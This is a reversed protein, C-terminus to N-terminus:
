SAPEALLDIISKQEVLLVDLPTDPNTLWRYFDGAPGVFDGTPLKVIAPSRETVQCQLVLKGYTYIKRFDEILLNKDIGLVDEVSAASGAYVEDILDEVTLKFM